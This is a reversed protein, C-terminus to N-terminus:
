IYTESNLEITTKLKNYTEPFKAKFRDTIRAGTKSYIELGTVITMNRTDPGLPTDYAIVSYDRVLAEIGVTVYRSIAKTKNEVELKIMKIGMELRWIPV